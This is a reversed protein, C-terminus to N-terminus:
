KVGGRIRLQIHGDSEGEESGRTAYRTRRVEDFGVLRPHQDVEANELTM